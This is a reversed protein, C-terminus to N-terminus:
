RGLWGARRLRTSAERSVPVELGNTLTLSLRRGNVRVAGVAERAVWWSRHVREGPLGDLKEIADGLRM